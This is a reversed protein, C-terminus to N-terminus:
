EKVYIIGGSGGSDLIPQNGVIKEGPSLYYKQPTDKDPRESGQWRFSDCGIDRCYTDPETLYAPRREPCDCYYVRIDVGGLTKVWDRRVWECERCVSIRSM